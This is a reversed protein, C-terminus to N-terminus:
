FKLANTWKKESPVLMKTCLEFIGGGGVLLGCAGNTVIIENLIMKM